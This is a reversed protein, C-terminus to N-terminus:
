VFRNELPFVSLALLRPGFDKLLISVHIIDRDCWPIQDDGKFFSGVSDFFKGMKAEM